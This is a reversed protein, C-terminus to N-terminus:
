AGHFATRPAANDTAHGCRVELEFVVRQSLLEALKLCRDRIAVLRDRLERLVDRRVIGRDEFVTEGVKVLPKGTAPDIRQEEPVDHLRDESPLGTTDIKGPKRPTGKKKTTTPPQAPSAENGGDDPEADVSPAAPEADMTTVPESFLLGQKEHVRHGAPVRQALLKKVVDQLAAVDKALKAITTRCDDITADREILQQRLASNELELDAATVRCVIGDRAGRKV